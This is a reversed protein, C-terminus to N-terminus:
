RLPKRIGGLVLRSKAAHLRGRMCDVLAEPQTFIEKLMFHDYGGKEIEELNMELKQIAPTRKAAYLDKIDLEGDRICAIDGEKLYIM